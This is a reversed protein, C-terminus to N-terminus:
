LGTEWDREATANQTSNPTATDEDISATENGYPPASRWSDGVSESVTGPTLWAPRPLDSLVRTSVTDVARPTDLYLRGDVHVATRQLVRQTEAPTLSENQSIMLAVTGAVLPAAASSGYFEGAARTRAGDPAFIDLSSGSSSYPRAEGSVADVAGVAIVNEATAPAVMGGTESTVSLDHGASFLDITTNNAVADGRVAVYYEGRPLAVDIAESHTGNSSQNTVSKSVLTDEGPENRYLFLDFDANGEWYLRLSADGSVPGDGLTNYATNTGFSLWGEGSATGRWHRDAYNGASTVFVVGSDAAEAAVANLQDMGDADAPFYSASDVVVDVDQELLWQVAVAYREPSADRGVSALYLDSKPATRVVIEAVATDHRDSAFIAGRGGFQRSATVAGAISQRNADFRNGIVGVSASEGDVGAEHLSDISAFTSGHEAPQTDVTAPQSELSEGPDLNEFPNSGATGAGPLALSVSSVLIVVAFVVATYRERM